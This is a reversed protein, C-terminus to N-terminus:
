HLRGSSSAPPVVDPGTLSTGTAELAHAGRDAGVARGLRSGVGAIVAGTWRKWTVETRRRVDALLFLGWVTIFWGFAHFVADATLAM